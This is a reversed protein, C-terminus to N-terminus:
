GGGGRGNLCHVRRLPCLYSICSWHWPFTLTLQKQFCHVCPWPDESTLDPHLFIFCHGCTQQHLGISDLILPLRHRAEGAKDHPRDELQMHPSGLCFPLPLPLVYDGKSLRKSCQEECWVRPRFMRSHPACDTLAGWQVNHTLPMALTLTRLWWFSELHFASVSFLVEACSCFM